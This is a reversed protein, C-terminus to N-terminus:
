REDERKRRGATTVMFIFLCLAMISCVAAAVIAEVRYKYIKELSRYKMCVTDPLNGADPDKIMYVNITMDNHVINDTLFGNSEKAYKVLEPHVERVTVTNVNGSQDKEPKTITYAFGDADREGYLLEEETDGLSKLDYNASSSKEVNGYEDEITTEESTVTETEYSDVAYDLQYCAYTLTEKYIDHLCADRGKTYWQNGANIYILIGSFVTVMMCLLILIYAIVKVVFSEKM